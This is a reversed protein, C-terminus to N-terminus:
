VGKDVGRCLLDGCGLFPFSLFGDVSDDCRKRRSGTYLCENRSGALEAGNSVTKDCLPTLLTLFVLECTQYVISPSSTNKVHLGSM